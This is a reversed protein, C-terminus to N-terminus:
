RLIHMAYTILITLLTDTTEVQDSLKSSKNEEPCTAYDKFRSFAFTNLTLPSHESPM